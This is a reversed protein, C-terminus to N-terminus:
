IMLMLFTHSVSDRLAKMSKTIFMSFLVDITSLKCLLMLYFSVARQVVDMQVSCYDVSLRMTWTRDALVAGSEKKRGDVGCSMLSM